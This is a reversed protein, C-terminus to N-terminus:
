EEVFLKENNDWNYRHGSMRLAILSDLSIMRYAGKKCEEREDETAYKACDDLALMDWVCLCDYVKPDYKLGVGTVGKSVGRRATMIRHERDTRKIFEVTFIKGNETEALFQALSLVAKDQRRWEPVYAHKSRPM